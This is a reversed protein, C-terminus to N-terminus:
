VGSTQPKECIGTVHAGLELQSADLTSVFGEVKLRNLRVVQLVTQGPQVWEGKKSKVAVVMGDIPSLINAKDLDIKRLKIDHADLEVKMKAIEFDRKSQELQLTQRHVELQLKEVEAQPVSNQIRRNSALARNLESKAVELSKQAFRVDVDSESSKKSIELKKSAQDLLLKAEDSKIRAVVQDKKVLNGEQIRIQEIIGEKSAPIQISDIIKIVGSCTITPSDAPSDQLCTFGGASQGLFLVTLLTLIRTSNLVDVGCSIVKFRM